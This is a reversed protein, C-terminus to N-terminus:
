GRTRDMRSGAENQAAQLIQRPPVLLVCSSVITLLVGLPPYEPRNPTLSHGDQADACHWQHRLAPRDASPRRRFRPRRARRVPRLARGHAANWLFHRAQNRRRQPGWFSPWGIRSDFKTSSAFLDPDCGVCAFDGNKMCCRTLVPIEAVGRRSGCSRQPDERVKRGDSRAGESRAYRDRDAKLM